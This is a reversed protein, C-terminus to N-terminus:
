PTELTEIRKLLEYIATELLPVRKSQDVGAPTVYTAEKTVVGKDNTEEPTIEAGILLDKDGIGETGGFGAQNDILAHANYGWVEVNPDSLFNFKGIYNNEVAECIMALAPESPMEMLRFDSVPTFESKLRPDSSTNFATASGTVSISGVATGAYRFNSLTGISTYRGLELAIGGNVSAEIKGTTENLGIGAVGAFGSAPNVVTNGILVNGLFRIAYSSSDITMAGAIIAWNANFKGMASYASEGTGDGAASGRNVTQWTYDAM